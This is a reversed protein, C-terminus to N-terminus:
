RSRQWSLAPPIEYESGSDSDVEIIGTGRPPEPMSSTKEQKTDNHKGKGEPAVPAEAATDAAAEKKEVKVREAERLKEAEKEAEAHVENLRKRISEIESTCDGDRLFQHAGTECLGQALELGADITDYITKEDSARTRSMRRYPMRGLAMSGDLGTFPSRPDYAGVSASITQMKAAMKAKRINNRAIAIKKFLNDFAEQVQSDYYVIIMSRTRYKSPGSAESLMSGQKRKRRGQQSMQQTQLANAPNSNDATPQSKPITGPPALPMVAPHDAMPDETSIAIDNDEKPRLSETSGKPRTTKLQHIDNLQALEAQRSFIKSRLDDLAVLWAPINESLFTVSNLAEM